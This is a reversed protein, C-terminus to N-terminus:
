SIFIKKGCGTCRGASVTKNIHVVYGTRYIIDISCVPCRTHQYKSALINGTYVYDLKKSAIQSFHELKEPITPSVQYKSHPFFRSIHLPVERSLEESIWAIFNEFIIENDNVGPVVLFTIELHVGSEFITKANDLVIQLNAGTYKKHIDFEFAKIDLNIADIYKLYEKLADNSIYGNTVMLNKLAKERFLRAIKINTEFAIGPENYTFAIGINNERGKAISLIDESSFNKVSYREDIGKQSIDCNQCWSCHMNCGLSGISLIEKGPFFHYLPKKEIPDFNITSFAEYTEAILKGSVNRRVRCIGAQGTKLTCQHPCLTCQVKNNPLATYYLAEM